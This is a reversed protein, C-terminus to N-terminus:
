MEIHPRQGPDQGPQGGTQHWGETSHLSLGGSDSTGKLFNLLSFDLCDCTCCNQTCVLRELRQGFFLPLPSSNPKNDSM